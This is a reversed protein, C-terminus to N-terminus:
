NAPIKFVEVSVVVVLAQQSYNLLLPLTICPTTPDDAGAFTKLVVTDLVEQVRGLRVNDSEQNSYVVPVQKTNILM